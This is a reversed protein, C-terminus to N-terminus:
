LATLQELTEWLQRERETDYSEPSARREEDIDVYGGRLEGFRRGLAMDALVAGSRQPTSTGPLPLHPMVRDWMFRRFRNMDRALGTGPMLGPDHVNCRLRDGYRGQMEHCLYNVALKSTAYASAPSQDTPTTASIPTLSIAHINGVPIPWSGGLEANGDFAQWPAVLNAQGIRIAVAQTDPTRVVLM